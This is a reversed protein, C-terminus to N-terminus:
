FQRPGGFADLDFCDYTALKASLHDRLATWRGQVTVSREMPSVAAGAGQEWEYIADIQGRAWDVLQQCEPQRAATQGGVIVGRLLREVDTRAVTTPNDGFANV